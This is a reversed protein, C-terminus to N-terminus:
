KGQNIKIININYSRYQYIVIYKFKIQMSKLEIVLWDKMFQIEHTCSDFM